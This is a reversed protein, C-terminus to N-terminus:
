IANHQGFSKYNITLQEWTPELPPTGYPDNVEHLRRYTFLNWRLLAILNSLSWKIKSIFQLYKILLIAILTTWIQIQLAKEATGVFTKVRLNQKITKFFIEIQWRDKYIAAITSAAFRLHNTLIIIDEDKKPDHVVVHRLLHPCHKRAYFGTLRVINDMLINEGKPQRHEVSEFDANDKMRTVFFVKDACWKAFLIYDVYGRDAVIISGAPLALTRAVRIEHVKGTTLNAFVPLYGDHDIMLHLKVTGKTTRFDAWPFLTLCLNFVTADITLLKNKFRFKKRPAVAFCRELLHYFLRPLAAM